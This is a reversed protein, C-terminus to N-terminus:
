AGSPAAGYRRDLWGSWDAQMAEFSTALRHERGHAALWAAFTDGGRLGDSVVALIRPDGSKEVLYDTFVRAEAYFLSPRSTALVNVAGPAAGPAPLGALAPHEMRLLEALPIEPPVLAARQADESRGDAFRQRYGQDGAADEMLMAAAEDLWDPAPSGYRRTGAPQPAAGSWFAAVYWQHGLEHPVFNPGRPEGSGSAGDRRVVRGPAAGPPAGLQLRAMAEAMQRERLADSPLPLVVTFGLGRLAEATTRGAAPDEFSFVAYRAPERGFAARFRREGTGAQALLTRAEAETAALAVGGAGEVCVGAQPLATRVQTCGPQAAATAALMLLLPGIM